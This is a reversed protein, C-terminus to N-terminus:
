EGTSLGIGVEFIKNQVSKHPISILEDLLIEFSRTRVSGKLKEWHSVLSVLASELPNELGM